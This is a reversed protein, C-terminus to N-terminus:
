GGRRMAGAPFGGAAAWTKGRPRPRITVSWIRRRPDDSGIPILSSRFRTRRSHHIPRSRSRQAVWAFALVAVPDVARHAERSGAQKITTGLCCFADDCQRGAMAADLATFDVVLQELKPHALDLKRRGLSIVRDYEPAALLLDLLNRGILGSAGTILAISM